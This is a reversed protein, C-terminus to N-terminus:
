PRAAYAGRRQPRKGGREDGRRQEDRRENRRNDDRRPERERREEPAPPAFNVMKQQTANQEHVLKLAALAVKVLDSGDETMAEVLGRYNELDAEQMAARVRAKTDDRKKLDIDAATPLKGLPIKQKTVREINLMLRRDRPESMTLATGERGARGVRGIRHVYAEPASPVDFNVVHSLHEIDLGRAAVDTAVVLEAHGAKLRYLVRERQSQSMGGHLAEARHGRGNLTESLIDVDERTRCFIIAASPEELDLLSCLAELKRPRPVVYATQRILPASGSALIDRSITVRVPDKLHRKAISAIRPAMTASFLMVQREPPTASILAEIDDLFGLDLMEDAEDLVLAQISSLNLTGRQIHDLARGPTAVVIDVGRKLARIQPDYSQGGYIPLVRMNLAKGYRHIAESVQNALERTPTLVLAVPNVGRNSLAAIRHILPLAFAATKGTGTAAQGVLDRGEMLPPIASRQIPTPETHGLGALVTLLRSDLGLSGFGPEIPDKLQNQM